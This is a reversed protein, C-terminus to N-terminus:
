KLDKKDRSRYADYEEKSIRINPCKVIQGPYVVVMEVEITNKSEAKQNLRTFESLLSEHMLKLQQNFGKAPRTM